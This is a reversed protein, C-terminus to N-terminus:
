HKPISASALITKRSVPNNKALERALRGTNIDRHISSGLESIRTLFYQGGIYSFVLKTDESHFAGFNLTAAVMAVAGGDVRRLKIMRYPSLTTIEYTGAPLSVNEATFAFPITAKVLVAEQAQLSVTVAALLLLTLTLIRASKM